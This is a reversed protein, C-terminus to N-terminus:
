GRYPPLNEVVAPVVSQLVACSDQAATPAAAGPVADLAAIVVQRESVGVDYQCFEGRGTFTELAPYGAVRVRTTTPESNEALTALGDGSTYLTVTLSGGEGQWGCRPGEEAAEPVAGGGFGLQALQDATLLACPDAARADRADAIGPVPPVPQEGSGCGSLGGAVLVALVPGAWRGRRM